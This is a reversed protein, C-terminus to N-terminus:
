IVYVTTMYYVTISVGAVPYAPPAGQYPPPAGQYPPPPPGGPYKAAMNRWIPIFQFIFFFHKCIVTLIELM